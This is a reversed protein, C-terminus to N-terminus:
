LNKIKTVKNKATKLYKELESAIKMGQEYKKIAEDIDLEGGQLEGLIKDLEENLKKYNTTM